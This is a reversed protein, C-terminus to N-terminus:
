SAGPSGGRAQNATARLVKAFFTPSLTMAYAYVLERLVYVGGTAGGVVKIPQRRGDSVLLAKLEVTRELRLWERPSVGAGGAAAYLDDLRYRGSADRGIPRDTFCSVVPDGAAQASM